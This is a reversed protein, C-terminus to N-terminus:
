AAAEPGDAVGDRAPLKRERVVGNTHEAAITSQVIHHSSKIARYIADWGGAVAGLRIAFVGEERNGADPRYGSFFVGIAQRDPPGAFELRELVYQEVQHVDQWSNCPVTM